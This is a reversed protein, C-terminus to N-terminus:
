PHDPVIGVSGVGWMGSFRGCEASREQSVFVRGPQLLQPVCLPTFPSWATSWMPPQPLDFFPTKPPLGLTYMPFSDAFALRSGNMKPLNLLQSFSFIARSTM